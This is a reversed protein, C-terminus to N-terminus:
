VSRRVICFDRARNRLRVKAGATWTGFASRFRITAGPGSRAWFWFGGGAGLPRPVLGLAFSLMQRRNAPRAKTRGSAGPRVGFRTMFACQAATRSTSPSAAAALLRLIRCPRLLFFKGIVLRARSLGRPSLWPPIAFDAFGRPSLRPASLGREPGFWPGSLGRPSLGHRATVFRTPYVVRRCGSKSWFRADSALSVELRKRQRGHPLLFGDPWAV